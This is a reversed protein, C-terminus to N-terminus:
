ANSSQKQKLIDNVAQQVTSGKLAFMAEVLAQGIEVTIFKTDKRSLINGSKDFVYETELPLVITNAM